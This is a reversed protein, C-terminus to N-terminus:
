PPPSAPQERPTWGGIPLTETYYAKARVARTSAMLSRRKRRDTNSPATSAAAFRAVTGLWMDHGSEVRTVTRLAMGTSGAVDEIRLGFAIRRAKIVDGIPPNCINSTVDTVLQVTRDRRSRARLAAPM